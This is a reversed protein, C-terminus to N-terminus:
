TIFSCTQSLFLAMLLTLPYLTRMWTTIRSLFSLYTIPASILNIKTSKILPLVESLRKETISFDVRSRKLLRPLLRILKVM